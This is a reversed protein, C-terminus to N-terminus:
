LGTTQSARWSGRGAPTQTDLYTSYARAVHLIYARVGDHDEIGLYYVPQLASPLLEHALHEAHACIAGITTLLGSAVADCNSQMQKELSFYVDRIKEDSVQGGADLEVILQRVVELANEFALLEPSEYRILKKRKFPWM